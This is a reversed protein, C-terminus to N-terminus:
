GDVGESYLAQEGVDVPRLTIVTMTNGCAHCTIKRTDYGFYRLKQPCRSCTIEKWLDERVRNFGAFNDRGM